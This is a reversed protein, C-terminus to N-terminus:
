PTPALWAGYVISPTTGGLTAKVRIAAADPDRQRIAIGSLPIEFTGATSAFSLSLRGVETPSSFATTADTEVAILYTEDGSTGDLATVNLVAKFEGAMQVPLAMGTEAATATEAGDAVDRLILAADIPGYTM